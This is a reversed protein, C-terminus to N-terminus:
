DMEPKGRKYWLLLFSSAIFVSSYTGVIVGVILPFSLNEIGSSSRFTIVYLMVVVLWVTFSTLITRSLTQNVSIDIIKSFPERKMSALNERIRDFVVVTDNVSYGIITLVAAFTSLNIEFNAGWSEPIVLGCICVAGVSIIADHILAVVAAVGFAMYRFRIWLYVIMAIWSLIIAWIASSKFEEAISEGIKNSYLFPSPSLEIGKEKKLADKIKQIKGDEKDKETVLLKIKEFGKPGNMKKELLVKPEKTVSDSEVYNKACDKIKQITQNTDGASKLYIYIGGGRYFDDRPNDPIEGPVLEGFPEPSLKDGFVGQIDKKIQDVDTERMRIQFMKSGNISAGVGSLNNKASVITQVEASPYKPITVGKENKTSIGKIASRVDDIKQNDQFSIAVASGGRFDMGFNDKGRVAFVVVSIIILMSSFVAAGGIAKVFGINPKSFLKMMNFETLVNSFIAMRMFVNSCWVATFLTTIIGISLTIGFGQVPGVGFYYLLIGAILTTLNADLITTLARVRGAEFSQLCSKGREREERIREFILINADVAMGLTLVIGAIGPLTLTAGLASMIAFILIANILLGMDAIFGPLRYYIIMFIFVAAFALILAIIGRRIADEGLTPGVYNEGELKISAPLSGSRLVIALQGASEETFNGHIFGRGGTIASEVRPSSVLKNDLIIAIYGKREEDQSALKSTADAFLKSGEDNLTFDVTWGYNMKIEAYANKIHAGTIVNEEKVWIYEYKGLWYKEDSGGGGKETNKIALYGALVKDPSPPNTEHLKKDGVEKLELKGITELLEKYEKVKDEDLGALQMVIEDEGSSSIRPEKLGKINVRRSLVSIASALKTAKEKDEKDMLLKYRLEAGGQLDIGVGVNPAEKFPPKKKLPVAFYLGVIGLILIIFFKWRLDKM